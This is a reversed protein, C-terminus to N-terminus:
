VPRTIPLVVTLCRMHAHRVGNSEVEESSLTSFQLGTGASLSSVHGFQGDPYIATQRAPRQVIQGMQNWLVILDANIWAVKDRVDAYEQRVERVKNHTRETVDQTKTDLKVELENM